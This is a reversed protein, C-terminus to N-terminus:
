SIQCAPPELEVTCKGQDDFYFSCVGCQNEPEVKRSQFTARAAARSGIPPASGPEESSRIACTSYIAKSHERILKIAQEDPLNFRHYPTLVAVPKQTASVAFQPWLGNCYGNASGHHPVKVMTADLDHMKEMLESWCQDELDGGLLVRTKGFTFRLVLSILNHSPDPLTKGLNGTEDICELVLGEYIEVRGGTPALSEIQVTREPDLKWELVPVRGQFRRPEMAKSRAGNLLRSFIGLLEQSSRSFGERLKPPLGPKRALLAHYKILQWHHVHSLGDFRWFEAPQFEDLLQVMGLFHDDHPHTLCLFQLRSVQRNKLFRFTPNQWPDSQSQTYCDVVGWM